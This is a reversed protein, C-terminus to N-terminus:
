GFFSEIGEIKIKHAYGCKTCEVAIEKDLIPLKEFYNEINKFQNQNLSDLFEILEEKSTEKAYHLKEGEFIYEISSLIIDISTEGINKTTDHNEIISYEPYKFKIGVDNTVMVIDNYDESNKLKLDLINYAVDLTNGCEKEDVVNECKYKLEVIEGVSRARLNLFLFEIDVIPLSDIDVKSILCNTLIQKMARLISDKENSEAAMFLIKQEKVLYPRFTVKQKSVPLILDHTPIDIKPLAM